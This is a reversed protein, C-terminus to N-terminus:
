MAPFSAAAFSCSDFSSLWYGSVKSARCIRFSCHSLACGHGPCGLRSAMACVSSRYEISAGWTRNNAKGFGEKWRLFLPSSIHETSESDAFAVFNRVIREDTSLTYGLSRRISLYRDLEQSLVSM